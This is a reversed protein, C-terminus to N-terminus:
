ARGAEPETGSADHGPGVAAFLWLSDVENLSQFLVPQICLALTLVVSLSAVFKPVILCPTYVSWSCTTLTRIFFYVFCLFLKITHIEHEHNLNIIALVDIKRM